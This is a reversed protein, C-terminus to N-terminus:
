ILRGLLKDLLCHINLICNFPKRERNLAHYFVFTGIETEFGLQTTASPHLEQPFIPPELTFM